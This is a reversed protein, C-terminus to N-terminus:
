AAEQRTRALLDAKAPPNDLAAAIDEHQWTLWGPPLKLLIAIDFGWAALTAPRRAPEAEAILALVAFVVSAGALRGPVPPKRYQQATRWSLLGLGTLWALTIGRM